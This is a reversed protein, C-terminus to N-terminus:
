PSMAAPGPRAEGDSRAAATSRSYWAPSSTPRTPALYLAAHTPDFEDETVELLPPNRHTWGANNVIVDLGSGGHETAADLARDFLVM